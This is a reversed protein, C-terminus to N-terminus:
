KGARLGPGSDPGHGGLPSDQDPIVHFRFFRRLIEDGLRAPIFDLAKIGLALIMPFAIEAKNAALGKKIKLAAKEPSIMFPKAGQYRRSMPTEVFGPSIVSVMVGYPRLWSRLARGYVLMAAKSASYSPSFPMGCWGGLSSILAIQGARRDRMRRALPLVAEMAALFNVQLVRRSDEINEPQEEPGLSSSVGAGAIFLDVPQRSCVEQIWTGIDQSHGLDLVRVRTAAGKSRCELSLALLTKRCRGTLHLLTGPAAYALALARGLGGSAGTIVIHKM